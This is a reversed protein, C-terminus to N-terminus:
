GLCDVLSFFWLFSVGAVLCFATEGYKGNILFQETEQFNQGNLGQFYKGLLYKVDCISHILNLLNQKFEHEVENVTEEVLCSGRIRQSVFYQTSFFISLLITMFGFMGAVM